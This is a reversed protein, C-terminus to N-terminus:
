RATFSSRMTGGATCTPPTWSNIGQDLASHIVAISTADDSKGYTGSMSMCGLGIASVSLAGHGLLRHEM